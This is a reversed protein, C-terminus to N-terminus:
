NTGTSSWTGASPLLQRHRPLGSQGSDCSASARPAVPYLFSLGPPIHSAGLSLLCSWSGACSATRQSGRLAPAGEHETVQPRLGRRWQLLWSHQGKVLCLGSTGAHMSSRGVGRVRCAHVCEAVAGCSRTSVCLLGGAAFVIAPAHGPADLLSSRVHMGTMGPWPDLGGCTWLGALRHLHVTNVSACHM